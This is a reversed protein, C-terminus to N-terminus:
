TVFLRRPQTAWRRRYSLFDGPFASRPSEARRDVQPSQRFSSSRPSAMSLGLMIDSACSVGPVMPM